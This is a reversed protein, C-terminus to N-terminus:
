SYKGVRGSYIGTWAFASPFVGKRALSAERSFAAKGANGAWGAHGQRGAVRFASGCAAINKSDILM